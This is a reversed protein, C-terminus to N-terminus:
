RVRADLRGGHEDFVIRDRWRRDSEGAVTEICAYIADAERWLDYALRDSEGGVSDDEPPAIAKRLASHLLTASQWYENIAHRDDDLDLVSLAANIESMANVSAEGVTLTIM